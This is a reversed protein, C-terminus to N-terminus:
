TITMVEVMAITTNHGYPSGYHQLCDHSLHDIIATIPLCQLLAYLDPGMSKKPLLLINTCKNSLIERWLDGEDHQFHDALLTYDELFTGKYEAFLKHETLPRGKLSRGVVVLVSAFLLEIITHVKASKAMRDYGEKDLLVKHQKLWDFVLTTM